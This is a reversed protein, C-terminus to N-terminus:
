IVNCWLTKIERTSVVTLCTNQRLKCSWTSIASCGTCLTKLHLTWLMYAALQLTIDMWSASINLSKIEADVMMSFIMVYLRWNKNRTYCIYALFFVNFTISFRIFINASKKREFLNGWIYKLKFNNITPLKLLLM